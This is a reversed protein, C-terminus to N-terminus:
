YFLEQNLSLIIAFYLNKHALIIKLNNTRKLIDFFDIMCAPKSFLNEEM